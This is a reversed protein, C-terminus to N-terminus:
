KISNKLIEVVKPGVINKSIFQSGDIGLHGYDVAILKNGDSTDTYRMCGNENCLGDIVSIYIIGLGNFDEKLTSEISFLKKDIGEFSYKQLEGIGTMNNQQIEKAIEFPLGKTWIVFEGIVAVKASSDITKIKSLYDKYYSGYSIQPNNGFGWEMIFSSVLILDFHGNKIVDNVKQNVKECGETAAIRNKNPFKEVLPLCYASSLMSLNIDENALYSELAEYLSASHSDGVLLVNYKKGRANSTCEDANFSNVDPTLLFCNNGHMLTDSGVPTVIKLLPYRNEFGNSLYTSSGLAIFGISLLSFIVASKTTTIKLKKRFPQEVYKWSIFGLFLSSMCIIGLMMDSLSEASKIRAFALLPQHWLYASYSILGINVFIKSGLLKGVINKENAFVVILGAGITPVLTYLGPLPTTKDFAFIAYIILISGVIAALQGVQQRASNIGNKHCCYLSILAGILIEFGRTPLLFFTFSPYRASAWQASLVSIVSIFILLGVIWKKGLGWTLMLFLPFILYYQEEVALSWTHLLPKLESATEFYGSDLYFLINSAFMPVAVLSKSFEKLDLPAMWFWAFPLTCIMVFFLAPLIRRARRGYFNMLSFSNKEMEDAIVTTILYGSIVFFIDVGVFGGSFATFGAHFLIVPIVALARLGDIEKRYKM